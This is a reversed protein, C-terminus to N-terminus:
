ICLNIYIPLYMLVDIAIQYCLNVCIGLIYGIYRYMSVDIGYICGARVYISLMVHSFVSSVFDLAVCAAM